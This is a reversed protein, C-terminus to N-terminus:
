LYQCHFWCSVYDHYGLYSWLICFFIETFLLKRQLSIIQIGVDLLIPTSTDCNIDCFSECWLCVWYFHCSIVLLANPDLKIYTVTGFKWQPTYISTRGTGHFIINLGTTYISIFRTIYDDPPISPFYLLGVLHTTNNLLFSRRDTAQLYYTIQSGTEAPSVGFLNLGSSNYITKISYMPGQIIHNGRQYDTSVVNDGRQSLVIKLTYNWM